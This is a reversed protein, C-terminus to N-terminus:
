IKISTYFFIRTYIYTYLAKKGKLEINHIYMYIKINIYLYVYKYVLKICFYYICSNYCGEINLFIEYDYM